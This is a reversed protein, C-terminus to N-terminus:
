ARARGGGDKRGRGERERRGAESARDAGMGGERGGERGGEAEVVPSEVREEERGGAETGEGGEGGSSTARRISWPVQAKVGRM